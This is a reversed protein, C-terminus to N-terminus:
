EEAPILNALAIHLAAIEEADAPDIRGIVRILIGWRRADESLSQLEEEAARDLAPIGYVGAEEREEEARQQRAQCRALLEGITRDLGDHLGTEGLFWAKPRSTVKSITDLMDYRPQSKGSEWSRVTWVSVDLAECFDQATRYGAERRAQSIREGMAQASDKRDPEEGTSEEPVTM